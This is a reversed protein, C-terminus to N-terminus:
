RPRLRRVAVVEDAEPGQGEFRVKYEGKGEQKLVKAPVFIGKYDVLVLQGPQYVLGKTTAPERVIRDAPVEEEGGHAFKVKVTGAGVAVVAAAFWAGRVNVLVNEGVAPPGAAPAPAGEVPAKPKAKEVKAETPKEAKGEASKEAKSEAPKEAKAPPPTAVAPAAKIRDVGVEQDYEPGYKEFRVVWRDASSIALVKAALTQGNVDVMVSEGVAHGSPGTFPRKIRDPGVTEAAEPGFGDYHVRWSQESVQMVVDALLLRNQYTVLVKEGPRYDRAPGTAALGTGFPKIREPGVAENWENGTNDYHVLFRGEGLPQVITAGYWQGQRAVQV